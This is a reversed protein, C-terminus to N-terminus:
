FYALYRGWGWLDTSPGPIRKFCRGGRAYGAPLTKVNARRTFCELWGCRGRAANLFQAIGHEPVSVFRRFDASCLRIRGGCAGCSSVSHCSVSCRVEPSSSPHLFSCSRIVSVAAVEISQRRCSAKALGELMALVVTLFCPARM